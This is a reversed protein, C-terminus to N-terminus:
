KRASRRRFRGIILGLLGGILWAPLVLGTFIAARPGANLMFGMWGLLVVITACILWGLVGGRVTRRACIGYFVAVGTCFAAAMLALLITATSTM